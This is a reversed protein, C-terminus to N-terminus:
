QREGRWGALAKEAIGALLEPSTTRAWDRVYELAERAEALQAELKTIREANKKCESKIGCRQNEYESM